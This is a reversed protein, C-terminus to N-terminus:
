RIAGPPRGLCLPGGPRGSPRGGPRGVAVRVPPRLPRGGDLRRDSRAVPPRIATRWATRHGDVLHQGSPRGVPRGSTGDAPPRGVRVNTRVSPRRSEDPRRGESTIKRFSTRHSLGPQLHSRQKRPVEMSRRPRCSPCLSRRLLGGTGGDFVSM